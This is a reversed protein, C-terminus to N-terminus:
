SSLEEIKARIKALKNKNELMLRNFYEESIKRLFYEKEIQEMQKVLEQEKKKYYWLERKMRKKKKCWKYFVIGCLIFITILSILLGNNALFLKFNYVRLM